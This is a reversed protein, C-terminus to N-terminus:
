ATQAVAFLNHGWPPLDIYLGRDLLDDGDREYREPGLRDDLTWSHGALECHPIRIYGQSPTAALNVVVLHRLEGEPAAWSSAVLNTYTGNERWASETDLLQWEGDHVVPDDLLVALLDDYFDTLEGRDPEDPARCLHVPAHIRRAERQGDQLFRVGPVLYTIVAASRHRDDTGFVSAARPEDHNELFRASRAQYDADACLHGRVAPLDGVLRDYLRKDYTADFGQQQLDYERDWYVEAM